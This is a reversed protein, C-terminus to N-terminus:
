VEEKKKKLLLFLIILIATVLLLLWCNSCCFICYLIILILILLPLIWQRKKERKEKISLLFLVTLIIILLFFLWCFNGANLFKGIAALFKELGEPGEEAEEGAILGEGEGSPPIAQGGPSTPPFEGSPTGAGSPTEGETAGAVGKTTFSREESLAFSGHSVCRYYYTTGSILGTITISHSAVKPTTDYEPTTHAYGYKPPTGINDSLDLNHAEAVTAYLVQTTSFYNTQWTITVTTTTISIEAENFIMLGPPLGGGGGGETGQFGVLLDFGLSKGQYPDGAGSNFTVSFDYQTQGGSGAVDSLYKEGAAFLSALTDNYLTTAGEKITINMQPALNDPDSENITEAAIKQVEGSNNTIRILRSINNGPLFNTESFIPGSLPLWNSGGDSSYEIVLSDITANASSVSLVGAGILVISIILITKLLRTM